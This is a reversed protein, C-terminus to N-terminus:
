RDRLLRAVERQAEDLIMEVERAFRDVFRQCNEAFLVERRKSGGCTTCIHQPAGYGGIAGRGSCVQCNPDVWVDLIQAVVQELDAQTFRGAARADALRLMRTRVAKASRLKDRMNRAGPMSSIRDYEARLRLMGFGLDDGLLGAATLMDIAGPDIRWELHSSGIARSYKEAIATM